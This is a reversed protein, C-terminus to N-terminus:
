VDHALLQNPLKDKELFEAWYLIPAESALTGGVINKLTIAITIHEDNKRQSGLSEKLMGTLVSACVMHFNYFQYAFTDM